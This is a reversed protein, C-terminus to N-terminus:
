LIQDILHNIEDQTKNLLMRIFNNQNITMPEYIIEKLYEKFDRNGFEIILGIDVLISKCQQIDERLEM